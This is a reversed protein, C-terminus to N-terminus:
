SCVCRAAVVAPSEAASSADGLRLGGGMLWGGGGKTPANGCICMRACVCSCTYIHIYGIPSNPKAPTQTQM